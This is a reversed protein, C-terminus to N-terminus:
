IEKQRPLNRNIRHNIIKPPEIAAVMNEINAASMNAQTVADTVTDGRGTVYVKVLMTIEHQM